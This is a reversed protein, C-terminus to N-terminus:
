TKGREEKVVDRERVIEAVKPPIIGCVFPQYGRTQRRLPGDSVNLVFRGRRVELRLRTTDEREAAEIPVVVDQPKVLKAMGNATRALRLNPSRQIRRGDPATCRESRVEIRKFVGSGPM